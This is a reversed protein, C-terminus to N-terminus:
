SYLTSRLRLVYGGILGALLGLPAAVWVLLLTVLDGSTEATAVPDRGLLLFLHPLATWALAFVLLDRRAGAEPGLLEDEFAIRSVEGRLVKVSRMMHQYFRQLHRGELVLWTGLILPAALLIRVLGRPDDLAVDRMGPHLRCLMWFLGCVAAFDLLLFLKPGFHNHPRHHGDDHQPRPYWQPRQAREERSVAHVYADHLRHTLWLFALLLLAITLAVTM